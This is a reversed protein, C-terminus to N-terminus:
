DGLQGALQKLLFNSSYSHLDGVVVYVDQIHHKEIMEKVTYGVTEYNYYRPDLYHTEGYNTAIMPIFALGFSDTIVLCNKEIGNDSKAYTWPGAPGGLYVTYRDNSRANEDLFPILKYEDPATIRRWELDFSPTVLTLSDPNKAMYDTPNDRYYTGLFPEEVTITFDEWETPTIGAAEAMERYVLYTGEPTWHMDSRFYVYEGAKIHEDLVDAASIATVHDPTFAHVIEETQSTFYEKSGTALYNNGIYSQPVMTYVLRSDEPLLAAVRGLVSAVAIANTRNYSQWVSTKGASVSLIAPYLPFDEANAAPKPEPAPRTAPDPEPEAPESPAPDPVASPDEAPAEPTEPVPDSSVPPDPTLMGSIMDELEDLDPADGSLEDRSGGQVALSDEYTAISALDKLKGALSMAPDRAWFRDLLYDELTDSLNGDIFASLTFTPAAALTRNETSDFTAEKEAFFLYWAGTCILLAAWLLLFFAKEQKKM